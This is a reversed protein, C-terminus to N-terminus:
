RAAELATGVTRGYDLVQRLLDGRKEGRDIRSLVEMAGAMYARQCRMAQAKGADQPLAEAIYAQAAEHITVASM